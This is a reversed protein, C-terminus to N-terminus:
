FSFQVNIMKSLIRAMLELALRIAVTGHPIIRWTHSLSHISVFSISYGILRIAPGVEDSAVRTFYSWMIYCLVGLVLM